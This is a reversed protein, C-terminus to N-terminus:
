PPSPTEAPQAAALADHRVRDLTELLDRSNVPKDLHAAAGLAHALEARHLVSCIIVPIQATVPHGRLHALLEWGDLSPMLVDLVIVDPRMAVVQALPEEDPHPLPHVQYETGETYRRFVYVVDDNDDVVLVMVPRAQVFRLRIIGQTGDRRFDAGGTQSMLLAWVSQEWDISSGSQLSCLPDAALTIEVQSGVLETSLKLVGKEGPRAAAQAASHETQAALDEIATILIQRLVSPHIKAALPAPHMEPALVLELGRAALLGVMVKHAREMEAEVWALNAPAHANFAALEEHVQVAWQGTPSDCTETPSSGGAAWEERSQWLRYALAQVAMQQERRLHRPSIQLRQATEKQTLEQIYRYSLLDYYRQLHLGGAAGVGPQMSEIAAVIQGHLAHPSRDGHGGLSRWVAEAPLYGPDYFHNLLDQLMQEFAAFDPVAEINDSM